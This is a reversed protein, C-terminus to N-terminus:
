EKRFEGTERLFKIIESIRNELHRAGLRYASLYQCLGFMLNPKLNSNLAKELWITPIGREEYEKYLIKQGIKSGMILLDGANILSIYYGNRISERFWALSLKDNKETYLGEFYAIALLYQAHVYGEEAARKLYKFHLYNNQMLDKGNMYM